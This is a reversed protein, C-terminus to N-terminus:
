EFPKFHKHTAISLMPLDGGTDGYAYIEEYDDLNYQHRIRNVKENGNCEASHINGNCIGNEFCLENTILELANEKCFPKLLIDLSASVIVVLDGREKHWHIRRIAASRLIGPLIEKNFKESKKKLDMESKGKFFFHTRAKKLHDVNILKIKYLFLYPLTFFFKGLLYETKSKMMQQFISVTDKNSITGDFDFFAINM